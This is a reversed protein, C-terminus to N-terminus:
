LLSFLLRALQDPDHRIFGQKRMLDAEVVRLGKGQLLEKNYAVIESKAKAYKLIREKGPKRSNVVVYDLVGEGLYTEVISVFDHAGFGTTEGFKTTLNSVYAKKGKSERVAQAIGTPLFNPVVSSFLDGPGIVILDSRRIADVARPNANYAPDLWVKKIRRVGNHKPVDINTEGKVIEGNELQAHLRIDQLTSPIVRGKLKLIKSIEDLAREFSGLQQTLATIFLNGFNHDRLSGESFRFTFLDALPKEAESLAIIAPRVSGPPLIGFEERLTKTSGGDDAMSVVAALNLPYHKLGSLVTYTGTGGGIVVVNKNKM